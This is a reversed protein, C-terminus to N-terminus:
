QVNILNFNVISTFPVTTSFAQDHTLTFDFNPAAEYRDRDDLFYPNRVEKIDLIGVNRAIFTQITLDNQLIAALINAVDSATYQTTNSPDQVALTSMQFTTQYVQLTAYVEQQTDLNFVYDNYPFGQRYDHLKYLYAAPQRDVGQRDPQYAQAITIGPIGAAALQPNITSLILKFLQNDYM